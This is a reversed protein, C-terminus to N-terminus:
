RAPKKRGTRIFTSVAPGLSTFGLILLWESLGPVATKFIDRLFPLYVVALIMVLSCLVAGVLFLNNLFPIEFITKKESKCEFVHTLQTLVITIFAGTRSLIVDGTFFWISAFVALTSISLLVGRLLILGLLGDSFINDNAERPPDQMIDKEAPELGLAIAPLGDTVLNM